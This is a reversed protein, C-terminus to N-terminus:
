HKKFWIVYLAALYGLIVITGFFGPGTRGSEIRFKLIVCLLAGMVLAVIITAMIQSAKNM